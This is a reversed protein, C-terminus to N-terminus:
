TSAMVTARLFRHARADVQGEAQELEGDASQNGGTSCASIERSVSLPSRTESAVPASMSAMPMSRPCRVRTTVRLPPLTTVMESAGRVARAISRAIPSRQSPGTKRAGPPRRSSRWPAARITRWTARRAPIALGTPGCRQPMREDSRREVGAHWQPVHLFGSRVGIRSGSHAIVSGPSRQVPVGSIDDGRVDSARCSLGRALVTAGGPRSIFPWASLGFEEACILADPRTVSRLRCLGCSGGSHAANRRILAARVSACLPHNQAHPGGQAEPQGGLDATHTERRTTMASLHETADHLSRERCRPWSAM